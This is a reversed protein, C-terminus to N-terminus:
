PGVFELSGERAGRAAADRELACVLAELAAGPAVLVERGGLKLIGLKPLLKLGRFVDRKEVREIEYRM